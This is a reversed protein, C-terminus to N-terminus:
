NLNKLLLGTTTLGQAPAGPGLCLGRRGAQDLVWFQVGLESLGVLGNKLIIILM